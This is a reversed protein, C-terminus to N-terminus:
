AEILGMEELIDLAQDAAEEPVFIMTGTRSGGAYIRLLQGIGEERTYVPIGADKFRLTL